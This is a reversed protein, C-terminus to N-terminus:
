AKKSVQYIKNLEPILCTTRPMEKRLIEAFKKQYAVSNAHYPVAVQPKTLKAIEFGSEPSTGAAIGVTCFVVDFKERTGISALEEFPLSDATHFVKVGDESTIIYTVPNSASHNCKEAKISVEGLHIESGPNIEILKEIPILHQLRKTSAPDAIVKCNTNKQIEKVLRQDLHDYHEHTILVADSNPFSRSRIDVPDIVLTKSPTKILVGAYHNFWVFLIANEEPTNKIPM